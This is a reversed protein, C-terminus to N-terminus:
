GAGEGTACGSGTSGIPFFVGDSYIGITDDSAGEAPEQDPIPTPAPAAVALNVLEYFVPRNILAELRGRVHIYPTPEGTKEDVEVRIAHDAGAIVLDDSLTRFKLLQNKDKGAVELEIALLPADDVTIKMKEVPTVLYYCDDADRRLVSSFLRVMEKRGIPTGMYYWTGDRAIRIDIEGCFDPEWREVPPYKQGQVAKLIAEMDLSAAEDPPSKIVKDGTAAM